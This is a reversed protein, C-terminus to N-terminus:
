QNRTLHYWCIWSDLGLSKMFKQNTTAHTFTYFSNKLNTTQLEHFVLNKAIQEQLNPIHDLHIHILSVLM